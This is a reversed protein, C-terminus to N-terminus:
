RRERLRLAAAGRYMRLASRLNTTSRGGLRTTALLPVELVPYDEQRCVLM